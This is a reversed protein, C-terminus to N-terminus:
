NILDVAAAPDERTLRGFLLPGRDSVQWYHPGRPLCLHSSPLLHEVPIMETVDRPKALTLRSALAETELKYFHPCSLPAQAPNLLFICRSMLGLSQLM